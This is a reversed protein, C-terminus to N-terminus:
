GNASVEKEEKELAKKAARKKIFNMAAIIIGLTIFAGPAAVFFPIAPTGLKIGFFSGNGLVERITALIFLAFTFGLGMWLGDWLSRLPNNKSAFAEARALIICNVVILPIFVGLSEYLSPIFANLLLEVMTVFGSIIVIYAAIRVQSPILKRLISIFLNSFVLVATAALGMGIAKEVNDTTALMPCMGLLQVLVPNQEILSKRIHSLYFNDKKM